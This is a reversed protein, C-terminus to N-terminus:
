FDIELKFNFQRGTLYNPVAYQQNFIDTVWYYSNVNNFGFLNLCELSIAIRRFPKFFGRGMWPDKGKEFVRSVGIDVRRYDPMRTNSSMYRPSRPPGVPLGQAWNFLLHVRYQPLGPIYDQFFISINYLQDMPRPIYGYNDGSVDEMTRMLSFSIWSDVGPVFEGFLKVDMGAAYGEADNKGMYRISVNDLNYTIINKLSKYYVDVSLKLPRRLFRYYYDMGAIVQFSRQSKIDKNLYYTLNNDQTVTDKIEKYSPSQYYLGTSFRFRIDPKIDPFYAITARPSVTFENNFSWYNFRLGGTFVMIGGKNM